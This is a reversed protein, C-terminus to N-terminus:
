ACMVGLVFLAHVVRSGGTPGGAKAKAKSKAAGGSKKKPKSARVLSEAAVQDEGYMDVRNMALKIAAWLSSTVYSTPDKM